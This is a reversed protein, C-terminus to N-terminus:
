AHGNHDGYEEYPGSQDACHNNYYFRRRTALEFYEARWRYAEYKMEAARLKADLIKRKMAWEQSMIEIRKEHEIRALELVGTRRLPPQKPKSFRTLIVARKKKEEENWSDTATTTPDFSAIRPRISTRVPYEIYATVDQGNEDEDDSSSSASTETASSAALSDASFLDEFHERSDHFGQLAFAEEYAETEDQNVHVITSAAATSKENESISNKSPKTSFGSDEVSDM